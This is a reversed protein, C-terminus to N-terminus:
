RKATRCGDRRPHAETARDHLAEDLTRLRRELYPSVPHSRQRSHLPLPEEYDAHHIGSLPDSCDPTRLHAATRM